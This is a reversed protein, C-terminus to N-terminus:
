FFNCKEQTTTTTARKKSPLGNGKLPLNYGLISSQTIDLGTPNLHPNAWIRSITTKAAM